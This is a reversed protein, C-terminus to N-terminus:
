FKSCFEQYIEQREELSFEGKNELYKNFSNTIHNILQEENSFKSNKQPFYNEDGIQTFLQVLKTTDIYEKKKCFSEKDIMPLEEFFINPDEDMVYNMFKYIKKSRKMFNKSYNYFSFTNNHSGFFIKRYLKELGSSDKNFFKEFHKSLMQLEEEKSPLNKGKLKLIENITYQRAYADAESLFRVLFYFKPNRVIEAYDGANYNHKKLVDNQVHHRSEHAFGTIFKKEYLYPPAIEMTKLSYEVSDGYQPPIITATDRTQQIAKILEKGTYGSNNELQNLTTIVKKFVKQKKYGKETFSDYNIKINYKEESLNYNIFKQVLIDSNQAIAFNGILLLAFTLIIM